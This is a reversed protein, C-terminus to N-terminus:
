INEGLIVLIKAAKMYFLAVKDVNRRLKRKLSQSLLINTMNPVFIPLSQGGSQHPVDWGLGYKVVLDVVCCEGHGGFHSFIQCSRKESSGRHLSWSETQIIQSQALIVVIFTVYLYQPMM